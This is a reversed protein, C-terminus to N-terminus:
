RGPLIIGSESARVEGVAFHLSLFHIFSRGRARANDRDLAMRYLFVLVWLVDRDLTRAFGAQETEQRRFAEIGERVAPAIRQAFASEPRTEFHIGSELTKQTEILAHLAQQVDADVAGPTAFAAEVTARASAQLLEGHDRVFGADIEIEKYPFEDPTIGKCEGDRAEILFRCDFTCSITVERQTGCCLSCINENKAPCFRKAKRRECVPCAVPPM